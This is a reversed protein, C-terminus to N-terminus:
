VRKNKIIDNRNLKCELIFNNKIISAINFEINTNYNSPSIYIFYLFLLSEYHYYTTYKFM